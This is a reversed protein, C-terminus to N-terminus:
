WNEARRAIRASCARCWCNGGHGVYDGGVVLTNRQGAGGTLDITGANSLIVRGGHATTTIASEGGGNWALTSTSDIDFLGTQAAANGLAVGHNDLSLRSGNTLAISDWSVFRGIGGTQTHDFTLANQGTGGDFASLGALNADSLNSLTAVVGGAGFSM